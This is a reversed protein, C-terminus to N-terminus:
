GPAAIGRFGHPAVRNIHEIRVAGARMASEAGCIECTTRRLFFDTPIERHQGLAAFGVFPLQLVFNTNFKVPHAGSL